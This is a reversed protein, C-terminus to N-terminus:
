LDKRQIPRAPNGVVTMYDEVDHLVVAGAGVVSSAGITIQQIVSSGIGVWSLDGVVVRGALGANPCIHVFDGIQCEHEVVASTNIIAGVGIKADANVVAHPMVVSGVGICASDSVTATPHVLAPAVNKLRAHIQARIKADGISVIAGDYSASDTIAQEISGIVTIGTLEPQDEWSDDYFVIDSIGNARAIDAIVKGHGGAGILALRKIM